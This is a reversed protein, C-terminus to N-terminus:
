GFLFGNMKENFENWRHPMNGSKLPMMMCISRSMFLFLKSDPEFNNVLSLKINQINSFSLKEFKQDKM